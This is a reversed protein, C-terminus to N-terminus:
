LLRFTEFVWKGPMQEKIEQIEPLTLWKAQLIEGASIKLEGGVIEGLFVHIEKTGEFPKKIVTIKRQIKVDFGTEEKAERAAADEPTESEEVMGQTWNWLGYIRPTAEQVLLFKEDRRIIMAARISDSM